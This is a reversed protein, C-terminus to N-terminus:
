KCCAPGTKGLNLIFFSGNESKGTSDVFGQYVLLSRIMM